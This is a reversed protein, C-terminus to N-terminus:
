KKLIIDTGSESKSIYCIDKFYDSSTNLKDIDETLIVPVSISIKTNECISLNLKILNTGNLKSYVDYEIKSIKMGEQTIDMKKMFLKSENSINYYNRLLSECEGLDITTINDKTNNKQNETTTLTVLIKGIKQTYDEGNELISTDFNSSTFINEFMEIIKDYKDEEIETEETINIENNIYNEIKEKINFNEINNQTKQETMSTKQEYNIETINNLNNSTENAKINSKELIQSYYQNFFNETTQEFISYNEFSDNNIIISNNIKQTTDKNKNTTEEILQSMLLTSKTELIHKVEPKLDEPLDELLLVEQNDCSVYMSYKDKNKYKLITLFFCNNNNIKYEKSYNKSEIGFNSNFKIFSIESDYGLCAFIFENIIKSSYIMSSSSLSNECQFNYENNNILFLTLNHENINYKECLGHDKNRLYCILAKTKDISIASKIYWPQRENGSKVYLNEIFSFNDLNFSSATLFSNVQFFCTLVNNYQNSNMIHCSFGSETNYVQENLNLPFTHALNLIRSENDFSFDSLLFKSEGENGLYGILFHYENILNNRIVKYPVLTYYMGKTIFNIYGKSFYEGEPTFIFIITKYTIVIFKEREEFQSITVFDFQEKSIENEIKSEKIEIIEGTGELLLIGKETCFLIKGNELEFIRLYKAQTLLDNSCVFQSLFKFIITLIFFLNLKM